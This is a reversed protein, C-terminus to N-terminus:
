EEIETIHLRIGYFSPAGSDDPNGFEGNGVCGSLALFDYPESSDGGPDNTRGAYEERMIHVGNNNGLVPYVVGKKFGNGSTVCVVFGCGFEIKM